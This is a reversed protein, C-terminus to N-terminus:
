FPPYGVIEFGTAIECDDPVIPDEIVTNFVVYKGDLPYRNVVFPPTICYVPLVVVVNVPHETTLPDFVKLTPVSIM